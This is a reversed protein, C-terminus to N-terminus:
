DFLLDWPPDEPDLRREDSPSSLRRGLAPPELTPTRPVDPRPLPPPTAVVLDRGRTTVAANYRGLRQLVGSTITPFLPDLLEADPGGTAFTVLTGVNALAVGRVRPPLQSLSQNALIMRVGFKRIEALM